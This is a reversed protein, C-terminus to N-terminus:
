EQVIIRPTIFIMLNNSRTETAGRRFMHGVVPLDRFYPLQATRSVSEDPVRHYLGGMVLTTGDDVTVTTTARRVLLGPDGTLYVNGQFELDPDSPRPAGAANGNFTIMPRALDTVRVSVELQALRADINLRPVVILSLGRRAAGTGAGPYLVSQAQDLVSGLRPLRPIQLMEFVNGEEEDNQWNLPFSHGARAMGSLASAALATTFQRRKM